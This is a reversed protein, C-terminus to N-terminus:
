RGALLGRLFRDLAPNEGVRGELLLESLYVAGDGYARRGVVPRRETDAPEWETGLRRDADLAYALPTLSTADLASDAVFGTRAATADYLFSLDDPELAASEPEGDAPALFTLGDRGAIPVEVADGVSWAGEGRRLLLARAGAAVDELLADALGALEGTADGGVVIADPAEGEGPDYPASAVGLADLRDRAADGVHAVTADVPVPRPFVDIELREADIREGAADYLVADLAVTTRETVEPLPLEVRGACAGSVPALTADDRAVAARQEGDIRLAVEIRGSVTEATDNLTWCEVDTTEGGYYAHRDTRLHVRLPELADRYAFYAPKPTRHCDVVAKMWGDPWADILLHIASSVVRDTRRRLADTVLTTARAQHAQSAAIWERITDQEDFWDGHMAYTQSGYIERPTWPEEPDEPDEPLWEGPYEELMVGLNDLGECGYEGCGTQWGERIAPLWGAHLKGIPLAHNTYWM